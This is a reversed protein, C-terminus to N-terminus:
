RVGNGGAAVGTPARTGHGWTQVFWVGDLGDVQSKRCGDSRKLVLGAASQPPFQLAQLGSISFLMEELSGRSAGTHAGRDYRRRRRTARLNDIDTARELSCTSTGSAEAENM